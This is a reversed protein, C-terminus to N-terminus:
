QIKYVGAKAPTVVRTYKHLIEFTENKDTIELSFREPDYSEKWRQLTRISVGLALAMAALDTMGAKLMRNFDLRTYFLDTQM